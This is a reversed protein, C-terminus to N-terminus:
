AAPNEHLWDSMRRAYAGLAAKKATDRVRKQQDMARRRMSRVYDADSPLLGALQYDAQRTGEARAADTTM